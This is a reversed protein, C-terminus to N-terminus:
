NISEHTNSKTHEVLDNKGTTGRFAHCLLCECNKTPDSTARGQLKKATIIITKARDSELMANNAKGNKSNTKKKKRRPKDAM